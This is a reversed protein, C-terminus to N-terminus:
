NNLKATALVLILQAHVAWLAGRARGYFCRMEIAPGRMDMASSMASRLESDALQTRTCSRLRVFMSTALPTEIAM